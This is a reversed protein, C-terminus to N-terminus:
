PHLGRILSTLDTDLRYDAIDVLESDNNLVPQVREYISQMTDGSIVSASCGNKCQTVNSMNRKPLLFSISLSIVIHWASHIYKYNDETEVFAFLVLGVAALLVGPILNTLWERLTPQCSHSQYCRRVWSVSLLFAGVGAPVAFVLLSTRQCQVGLAVGLAGLVHAISALTPPVHAMAVLTVWFSLVASFFDCFQLVEYRLLCFGFMDVDCAHYFMSFFMTVGYVVAETYFQRRTALVIAPLFFLNSLTLLLTRMLLLPAPTARSNDTCGWGRWGGVCHCSSFYFQRFHNEQCYGHQGCPSGEFVCPQLRIRLDVITQELECRVPAWSSSGNFCAATFSLFWTGPEPFPFYKIAVLSDNTAVTLALGPPCQIRGSLYPPPSNHHICINVIVVQSTLNKVMSDLHIKTQLTGGIDVFPELQLGVVVPFADTLGLWSSFWEPGQVLFSDLFDQAHKIRTLPIMPLCGQMAALIGQEGLIEKVFHATHAQFETPTTTATTSPGSAVKQHDEHLQSVASLASATQNSSTENSTDSENFSSALHRPQRSSKRNPFHWPTPCDKIDAVISYGVHMDAAVVIYYYAEVEPQPVISYFDSGTVNIDEAYPLARARLAFKRICPAVAKSRISSSNSSINVCGSIRVLLQWAGDPVYVKFVTLQPPSTVNLHMGVNLLIVEHHHTWAAMSGLSYQCSRHIGQQKIQRSSEQLFAIVFWSGPLPNLVHFEPMETPQFKTETKLHYLSQSPLHTHTPFSSNDAAVVPYSGHRLYIYVPQSPCHKDDMFAVFQWAARSTQAPVTFHFIAVDSFTRYPRLLSEQYADSPTYVLPVALRASHLLCCLRLLRETPSCSNAM